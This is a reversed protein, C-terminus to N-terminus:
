GCVPRSRLLVQVVPAEPAAVIFAADIEGRQLAEAADLGAVPLLNKSKAKIENAELLQLALGRIGSGEEGSRSINATM